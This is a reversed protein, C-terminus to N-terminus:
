RPQRHLHREDLEAQERGRTRDRQRREGAAAPRARSRRHHARRPVQRGAHEVGVHRLRRDARRDATGAPRLGNARGDGVRIGQLLPLQPEVPEPPRRRRELLVVQDRRSSPPSGTSGLFRQGSGYGRAACTSAISFSRLRRTQAPESLRASAWARSDASFCRSPQAGREDARAVPRARGARRALPGGSGSRVRRRGARDARRRGPPGPGDPRHQPRAPRGPRHRAGRAESGRARRRRPQRDAASVGMRAALENLRLPGSLFLEALAVRQSASTAEGEELSGTLRAVQRLLVGLPDLIRRSQDPSVRSMGSM